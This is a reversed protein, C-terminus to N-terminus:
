DDDEGRRIISALKEDIAEGVRTGDICMSFIGVGAGILFILFAIVFVVEFIIM